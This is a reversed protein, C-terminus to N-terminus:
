VATKLQVSIKLNFNGGSFINVHLSAPFKNFLSAANEDSLGSKYRGGMNGDEMREDTGQETNFESKGARSWSRM